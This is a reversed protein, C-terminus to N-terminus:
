LGLLLDKIHIKKTHKRMKENYNIETASNGFQKHYEEKCKKM